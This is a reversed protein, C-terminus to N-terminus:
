INFYFKRDEKDMNLINIIEQRRELLMQREEERDEFHLEDELKVLENQYDEIQDIWLVM